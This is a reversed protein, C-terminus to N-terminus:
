VRFKTSYTYPTWIYLSDLGNKSNKVKSRLNVFRSVKSCDGIKSYKMLWNNEWISSWVIELIKKWFKKWKFFMPSRSNKLWKTKQWMRDKTSYTYPTWNYISSFGIKSNNVSSWLYAFRSIQIRDVEKSFKMLWNNKLYIYWINEVFKKFFKVEFVDSESFSQAMKNCETNQVLLTHREFM